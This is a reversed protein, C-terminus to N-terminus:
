QFKVTIRMQPQLLLHLIKIFKNGLVKRPFLSASINLWSELMALVNGHCIQLKFDRVCPLFGKPM